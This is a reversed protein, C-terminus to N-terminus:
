VEKYKGLVAQVVYRDDTSALSYLHAVEQIELPLIDFKDGNVGLLWDISVNFYGALKVVYILDPARDGSLYRSITAPAANIEGGLHKITIGRSHILNQLNERFKSYDMIYEGKGLHKKCNGNHKM